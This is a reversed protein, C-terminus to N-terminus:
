VDADAAVLAANRRRVAHFDQLSRCWRGSLDHASAGAYRPPESVQVDPALMSVRRVLVLQDAGRELMLIWRNKPNTDTRCAM